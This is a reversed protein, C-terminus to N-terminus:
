SRVGEAQAKLHASSQEIEPAGSARRRRVSQCSGGAAIATRRGQPSLGENHVQLQEYALRFRRRARHLRGRATVAPIRLIAAIETASLHEWESLLLVEQDRARLRRLAAHVRETTEDSAPPEEAQLTVPISSLRVRLAERRARARRQNAIVRRATAYLWVRAAEDEPVDDLRRWAILFVEAVADEADSPTRARWRCYAVIDPSREHFLTNFRRVREEHVHAM